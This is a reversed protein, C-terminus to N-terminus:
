TGLSGTISTPSITQPITYQSLTENIHQATFATDNKVSVYCFVLVSFTM